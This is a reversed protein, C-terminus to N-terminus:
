PVPAGAARRRRIRGVGTAGVGAGAGVDDGAVAEAEPTEPVVLAKPPEVAGTVAALPLRV